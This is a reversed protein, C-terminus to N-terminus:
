RIIQALMMILVGIAAAVLAVSAIFGPLLFEDIGNRSIIWLAGIELGLALISLSFCIYTAIKRLRRL